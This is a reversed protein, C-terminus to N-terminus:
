RYKMFRVSFLLLLKLLKLRQKEMGVAVGKGGGGGAVGERVLRRSGRERGGGAEWKGIM